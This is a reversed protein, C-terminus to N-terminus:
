VSTYITKKNCTLNIWILCIMQNGNSPTIRCQESINVDASITVGLVNEKVVTDLVTDKM